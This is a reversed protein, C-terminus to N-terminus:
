YVFSFYRFRNRLNKKGKENKIKKNKRGKNKGETPESLLFLVGCFPSIEFSIYVCVLLISVTGEIWNSLLLLFFLNSNRARTGGNAADVSLAHRGWVTVSKGLFSLFFFIVCISITRNIIIIIIVSPIYILEKRQSKERKFVAVPRLGKADMLGSQSFGWKFEGSSHFCKKM